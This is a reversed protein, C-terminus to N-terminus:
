YYGPSKDDTRTRNRFTVVRQMQMTPRVPKLAEIEINHQASEVTRDCTASRPPIEISRAAVRSSWPGLFPSDKTLFDPSSIHTQRFITGLIGHNILIGHNFFDDNECFFVVAM